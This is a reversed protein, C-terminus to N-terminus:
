HGNEDQRYSVGMQNRLEQLVEQLRLSTQLPMVQSELRGAKICEYVHDAEYHMGSGNDFNFDEPNDKLPFNFEESQKKGASPKGSIKIMRTPCWFWDPIEYLGNEFSVCASNTLWAESSFVLYAKQMGNNFELTINGGKDRGDEKDVSGHVKISTPMQDDCCFLAFQLTYIGIDNLPTAGREPMHRNDALTSNGFHATIVKLEGFEKKDLAERLKRYVPFFRSWTAEMLFVNNEKAKKVMSQLEGANVAIPKECLIHKGKEAAKCVWECHAQNQVGIYVVDVDPDNLMDDYSGYVQVNELGLHKVLEQARDFSTASVARIVNPNECKRMARAFDHSIKGASLIGWRLENPM